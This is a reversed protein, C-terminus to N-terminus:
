MVTYMVLYFLDDWWRDKYAPTSEWAQQKAAVVNNKKFYDAHEEWQHRFDSEQNRHRAISHEYAEKRNMWYRPTTPLAM